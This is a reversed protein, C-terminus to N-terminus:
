FNMKDKLNSTKKTTIEPIKLHKLINLENTKWGDMFGYDM